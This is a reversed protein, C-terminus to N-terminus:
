KGNPLPAEPLPYNKKLSLLYAVLAKAEATPVVEFGAPPAHPGKLGHIAEESAEGQIRQLKYLHRFAPMISWDTVSRPEYLHRHHWNPDLQRLGINSLDPGTRMSGPFAPQSRLFDRAVTSRAGLGKKIDTSLATPRVQQSHCYVCGNAAYIKQGAMALGSLSPPFFGRTEDDPIPQLRGLVICSYGVFGAWSAFFTAFIGLFLVPLKNM